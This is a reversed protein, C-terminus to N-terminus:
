QVLAVAASHLHPLAIRGWSAVHDKWVLDSHALGRDSVFGRQQKLHNQTNRRVEPPGQLLAILPVKQPGLVYATKLFLSCRAPRPLTDIRADVRM